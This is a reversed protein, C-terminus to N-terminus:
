KFFDQLIPAQNTTNTTSNTTSAMTSSLIQSSPFPRPCRPAYLIEQWDIDDNQHVDQDQLEELASNTGNIEERLRAMEEEDEGTTTERLALLQKMEDNEKLLDSIADEREKVMAAARELTTGLEEAIM